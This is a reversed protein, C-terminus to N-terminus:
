TGAARARCWREPTGPMPLVKPVPVSSNFLRRRKKGTKRHVAAWLTM